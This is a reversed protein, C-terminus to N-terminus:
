IWVLHYICSPYYLRYLSEKCAVCNPTPVMTPVLNECGDLGVGCDMCGGTCHTSPSRELPLAGLAHCHGGVQM